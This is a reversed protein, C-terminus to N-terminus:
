FGRQGDTHLSNVLFINLFLYHYTEIVLREVDKCLNEINLMNLKIVMFYSLARSYQFWQMNAKEVFFYISVHM